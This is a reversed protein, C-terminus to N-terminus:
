FRKTPIMLIADRSDIRGLRTRSNLQGQRSQLFRQFCGPLARKDKHLQPVGILNVSHGGLDIAFKGAVRNLRSAFHKSTKFLSNGIETNEKPYQDSECRYNASEY